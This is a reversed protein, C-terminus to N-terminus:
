IFAVLHVIHGQRDAEWLQARKEKWLTLSVECPKIFIPEGETIGIINAAPWFM